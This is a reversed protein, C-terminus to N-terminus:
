KDRRPKLIIKWHLIFFIRLFVVFVDCQPFLRIKTIRYPKCSNLAVKSKRTSDTIVKKQELM